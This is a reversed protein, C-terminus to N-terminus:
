QKMAPVQRELEKVRRNYEEILAVEEEGYFFSLLAFRKGKILDTVEHLLSASFIMASGTESEYLESGYEPFRLCGGEYEGVNLNITMAFRRYATGEKANDRHPRFYGGTEADYNLITFGEFRTVEFNFAKKIEPCVRKRIFYKLLQM